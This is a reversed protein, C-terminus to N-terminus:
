ILTQIRLWLLLASIGSCILTSMRELHNRVMKILSRTDTKSREPAYPLQPTHYRTLIANAGRNTPALMAICMKKGM